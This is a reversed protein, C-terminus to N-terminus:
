LKAPTTKPSFISALEKQIVTKLDYVHTPLPWQIPSKQIAYQVAMPSLTSQSLYHGGYSYTLFSALYEQEPQGPTPIFIAPKQLAVLDLITSYGSRCFVHQAHAITWKLQASNLFPFHWIHEKLAIAKGSINGGVIVCPTNLLQCTDVVKKEFYTRQPEPGSIVFLVYPEQELKPHPCQPKIQANFRSMPGIFRIWDGMSKQHSLDGSLCKESGWDPVWVQQFKSILQQLIASVIRGGFPLKIKIQHTIFISPITAHFLGYRNDSIILDIHYQDIIKKLLKHEKKIGKFIQPIQSALHLSTLKKQRYVVGYEPLTISPCQPFHSTLIKLSDGDSAIVIHHNLDLFAQILPICRTAHGIGWNLPAILVTKSPHEKRPM